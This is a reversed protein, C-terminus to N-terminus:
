PRWLCYTCGLVIPVEEHLCFYELFTKASENLNFSPGLPDPSSEPLKIIIQYLGILLCCTFEM